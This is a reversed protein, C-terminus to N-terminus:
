ARDGVKGAARQGALRRRSEPVRHSVGVGEGDAEVASKTCIGHTRMQLLKRIHGVGEDAGIRIGAQRVFEPLIVFRGLHHRALHLTKGAVTKDVDDATAAARRGLMDPRNGFGDLIVLRAGNGLVLGEHRKRTEFGEHQGLVNGEDVNAFTGVDGARGAESLQDGGAIVRRRQSDGAILHFVTRLDDVDVHILAQDVRM